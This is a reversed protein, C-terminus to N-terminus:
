PRAHASTSCEDPAYIGLVLDEEAEGQVPGWLLLDSSNSSRLEFILELQPDTSFTVEQSAYIELLQGVSDGAKLGSLTEMDTAPSDLGGFAVDQRYGMFVDENNPLTLIAAFPGYRIIRELEGACIGWQGTSVQWGTDESPEGFSATFRGIAEEAPTDWVIDKLENSNIRIGETILKLREVEIPPDLPPYPESPPTEVASTTTTTSTEGDPATTTTAADETATTTSTSTAATDATDEDDRLLQFVAVSLAVLLLGIILGTLLPSGPPTAPPTSPSELQPLPEDGSLDSLDSYPDTWGPPNDYPGQSDSM